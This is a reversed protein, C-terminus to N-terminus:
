VLIITYLCLFHPPIPHWTQDLWRGLGLWSLGCGFFMKIRILDGCSCVRGWKRMKDLPIWKQAVDAVTFSMFIASPNWFPAALLLCLQAALSRSYSKLLFFYKDRCLPSLSLVQRSQVSVSFNEAPLLCESREPLSPAFAVVKMKFDSAGEWCLPNHIHSYSLLPSPPSM